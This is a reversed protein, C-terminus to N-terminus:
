SQMVGVLRQPRCHTLFGRTHLHRRRPLARERVSFITGLPGGLMQEGVFGDYTSM